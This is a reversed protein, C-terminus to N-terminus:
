IYTECGEDVGRLRNGAAVKGTADKLANPMGNAGTSSRHDSVLRVTDRNLATDVDVRGAVHAARDGVRRARPRRRHHEVQGSDTIEVSRVHFRKCRRPTLARVFNLPLNQM